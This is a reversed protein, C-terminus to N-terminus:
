APHTCYIQPGWVSPIVHPHCVWYVGKLSLILIRAFMIDDPNGISPPSPEGVRAQKAGPYYRVRPGVGSRACPRHEFLYAFRGTFQLRSSSSSCARRARPCRHQVNLTIQQSPTDGEGEGQAQGSDGREEEGRWRHTRAARARQICVQISRLTVSHPANM